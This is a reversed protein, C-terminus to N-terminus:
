SEPVDNSQRPLQLDRVPESKGPISLYKAEFVGTAGSRLLRYTERFFSEIDVEAASGYADLAEDIRAIM